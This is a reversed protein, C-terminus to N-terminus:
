RGYYGYGNYAYVSPVEDYQVVCRSDKLFFGTKMTAAIEALTPGEVRPCDNTANTDQTSSQAMSVMALQNITVGGM